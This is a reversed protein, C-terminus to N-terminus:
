KKVTLRAFDASLVPKIVSTWLAYGDENIHLGDDNFLSQRPKGDSGLMVPVTDIFHLREDRTCLDRILDNAEHMVPWLDWRALSPKISVFYVHSGPLSGHITAVFKSFDDMCEQAYNGEIKCGDKFAIDNDGAYLVVMCPQYPIVIRSAYVVSDHITSGGFGRRIAPLPAMDEEITIWFTFTSSGVFVIGGPGPMSRKDSEEFAKISAEWRAPNTAKEYKEIPTKRM